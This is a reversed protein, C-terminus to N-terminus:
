RDGLAIRETLLRLIQSLEPNTQQLDRIKNYSYIVTTHDKGGFVDGIRPLSLDTHERMLYMGVQRAFGIERRRSSSQMDDISVSFRESVIQLIAEPTVAVRRPVAPALLKAVAEITLPVEEISSYAIARTLAGELERVNVTHRTAIYEVVDHPLSHREAEAKKHLIAMRTELDPIQMDATMGMAFRSTLRESCRPIQDPPRDSALVVQKGAEHLTNFAHFIEEQTAESNEIFQIDDLLLVDASRIRDRFDKRRDHKLADVLDNTFQETSIYCVTANPETSLRHHGIAQMLHTKGLGVGGWIFLPNYCNGPNDAVALAASHAFRNCNGSVFRKFTYKPNLSGRARAIPAPAPPRVAPVLQPQPESQLDEATAIRVALPYGLVEQIAAATKDSIHKQLWDRTFPDPACLTLCETTLAEAVLKAVLNDYMGRPLQVRLQSLVQTWLQQPSM